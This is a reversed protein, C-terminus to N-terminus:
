QKIRQQLLLHLSRDHGPFVFCSLSNTPVTEVTEVTGVLKFNLTQGGKIKVCASSEKLFAKRYSRYIDKCITSLSEQVVNLARTQVM